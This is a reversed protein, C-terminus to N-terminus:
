SKVGSWSASFFAASPLICFGPWYKASQSGM